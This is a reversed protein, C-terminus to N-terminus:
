FVNIERRSFALDNYNTILKKTTKELDKQLKVNQEETGKLKDM